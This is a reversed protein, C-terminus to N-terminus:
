GRLDLFISKLTIAISTESPIIHRPPNQLLAKPWLDEEAVPIEMHDESCTAHSSPAPLFAPAAPLPEVPGVPKSHSQISTTICSMMSNTGTHMKKMAYDVNGAMRSKAREFHDVDYYYDSASGEGREHAIIHDLLDRNDKWHENVLERFKKKIMYSVYHIDELVVQGRKVVMFQNKKACYMVVTNNEIYKPNFYIHQIFRGLDYPNEIFDQIDEYTFYDLREEGFNRKGRATFYKADFMHTTNIFPNQIINNTNNTHENVNNNHSNVINNHVVQINTVSNNPALSQLTQTGLLHNLSNLRAKRCVNNTNHYDLGRQASFVRMCKSCQYTNPRQIGLENLLDLPDLEAVHAVCPTKNELHYVYHSRQKFEKGCRKCEYLMQSVRQTFEKFLWWFIVLFNM